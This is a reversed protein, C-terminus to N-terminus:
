KLINNKARKKKNVAQEVSLREIKMRRYLTNENIWTLESLEAISYLKWEYKYYLKPVFRRPPRKRQPFFLNRERELKLWLNHLRIRNENEIHEFDEKTFDEKPINKSNDPYIKDDIKIWHEWFWYYDKIIM